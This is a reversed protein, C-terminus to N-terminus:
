EPSDGEEGEELERQEREQRTEGAGAQSPQFPPPLPQVRPLAIVHSGISLEHLNINKGQLARVLDLLQEQNKEILNIANNIQQPTMNDFHITLGDMQYSLTLNSGAFAEPVESKSLNLSAFDRGGIQGIKLDTVLREILRNMFTIASKEPAAQIESTKVMAAKQDQAIERLFDRMGQEGGVLDFLNKKKKEQDLKQDKKPLKFDIKSKKTEGPGESEGNSSSAGSSRRSPPVSM